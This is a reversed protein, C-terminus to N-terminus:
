REQVWDERLKKVTDARGKDNLVVYIVRQEKKSLAIQELRFKELQKDYYAGFEQNRIITAHKVVQRLVTLELGDATTNHGATCSEQVAGRKMDFFKNLASHYLRAITRYETFNEVLMLTSIAHEYNPKAIAISRFSAKV